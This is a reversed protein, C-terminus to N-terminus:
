RAPSATRVPAAGGGADGSPACGGLTPATQCLQEDHSRLRDARAPDLPALADESKLAEHTIRVVSQTAAERQRGAAHARDASEREGRAELEAVAAKAQAAEVKPRERAAGELRGKWYLGLAGAVIAAAAGLSMMLRPTM